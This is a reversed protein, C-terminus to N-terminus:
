LGFLSNQSLAALSAAFSEPNRLELTASVPHGSRNGLWTFLPTFNINGHGIPLHDDATGHNDHLHLHGLYEGLSGLWQDLEVTSFLNLHGIDLCFGLNPHNLQDLLARLPVPDTDFINELMIRIGYDEARSLLSPWFHLSRDLWLQWNGGYRWRDYGPHVVMLGAGVQATFDLSQTLRKATAQSVLPDIAGPNIDVSPAHVTCSLGATKLPEILNALSQSNLGDLDAGSLALEPQLRNHLLFALREALHTYPIQIFLIQATM